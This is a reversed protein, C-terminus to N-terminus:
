NEATERGYYNASKIMEETIHRAKAEIVKDLVGTLEDYKEVDPKHELRIANLSNEIREIEAKGPVISEARSYLSLLKDKYIEMKMNLNLLDVINKEYFGFISYAMVKNYRRILLPLAIVVLSLILILWLSDLGYFKLIITLIPPLAFCVYVIWFLKGHQRSRMEQAYISAYNIETYVQKFEDWIEDLLRDQLNRYDVAMCITTSIKVTTFFSFGHPKVKM